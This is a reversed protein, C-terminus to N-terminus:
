MLVIFTPRREMKYFIILWKLTKRSCGFTQGASIDKEHLNKQAFKVKQRYKGSKLTTHFIRSLSLDSDIVM